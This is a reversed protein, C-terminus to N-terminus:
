DDNSPWRSSSDTLSADAANLCLVRFALFLKGGRHLRFFFLNLFAIRSIRFINEDFDGKFSM